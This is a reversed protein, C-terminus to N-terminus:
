QVPWGRLGGQRVGENGVRRGEARGRGAEMLVRHRADVGTVAIVGPYAAPYLPAAAPGDNGVAAVILQGRRGLTTVATRVLLNPPGVLSINVVAVQRAAM